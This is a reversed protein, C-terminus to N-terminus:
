STCIGANHNPHFTGLNPTNFTYSWSLSPLGVQKKFNEIFSENQSKSSEIAMSLGVTPRWPNSGLIKRILQNQVHWTTGGHDHISILGPVSGSATLTDNKWRHRQFTSIRNQFNSQNVAPNGEETLNGWYIQGREFGCNRKDDEPCGEPAIVTFAQDYFDPVFYHRRDEVSGNSGIVLGIGLSWPEPNMKYVSRLAVPRPDDCIVFTVISAWVILMMARRKRKRTSM